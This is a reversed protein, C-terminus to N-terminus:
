RAGRRPDFNGQAEELVHQLFAQMREFHSGKWYIQGCGRCRRFEEQEQRVRPPLDELVEEKAVPGLLANCRLCRSFPRVLGFLDFRKLVEVVEERPHGSRVCYGHTVLNRKLLGRDKTLLIRKEESSIRALAEDNFENSYLTDFGLMRLYSALRGLHTDLIFRIERLPAPRVRVLSSIDISEFVPYVSVRDGDQLRHGFGVSRENVLILDVETHPVGLSEIADKVSPNGEVQYLFRVSRQKIPLFDNLEAYFRFSVQM